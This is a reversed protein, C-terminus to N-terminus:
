SEAAAPNLFRIEYNGALILMADTNAEFIRQLLAERCQVERAHVEVRRLLSAREMAYCISRCLVESSLKDKNLCDQAGAQLSELSLTEDGAGRLILVVEDAIAETVASLTDM